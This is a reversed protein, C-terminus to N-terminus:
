GAIIDLTDLWLRFGLTNKGNAPGNCLIWHATEEDDDIENM